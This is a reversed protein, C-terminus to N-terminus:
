PTNPPSIYPNYITTSEECHVPGATLQDASLDVKFRVDAARVAKVTITYVAEQAGQLAIPAFTLKQGEQHFSAPQADKLEMQEPLTATITVRTAPATGQNLVSIIYKTEAGVAVPDDQDDVDVTLGTAGEVRTRAEKELNLGRDGRVTARHIVEGAATPRLVLQVTRKTGTALTGLAWQVQGDVVRGGDSASVFSTKEPVPETVVIGTAAASGPNSVTIQCTLPRNVHRQAPAALMLDLKPEGVVVTSSAQKSEGAASTVLARNTWSGAKKAIAHYDISRTQGPTLTGLDWTLPAKGDAPELGEPLTDRLKVANAPATGTNTVTLQYTLSDYLVAQDPGSKHLVLGAATQPVPRLRPVLPVPPAAPVAPVHPAAPPNAAGLIRTCVSEGHEFQVRACDKVEGTGTPALVLVIERRACPELTGLEWLLDTERVSPEPTARVFRANAPLPNRVLVHHAAARSTNEVRIHYELEQGPALTAPVRVRVAVAPVPPDVPFPTGPATGAYPARPPVAPADALPPEPSSPAGRRVIRAPVPFAGLLCRDTVLATVLAGCLVVLTLGTSRQRQTM